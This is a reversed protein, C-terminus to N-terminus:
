IRSLEVGIAEQLMEVYNLSKKEQDGSYDVIDDDGLMVGSWGTMAAGEGTFKFLIINESPQALVLAVTYIDIGDTTGSWFSWARPMAKYGYGISKIRKFHIAKTSPICWLHRKTITVMKRRPDIKVLKKYSFLSLLQVFGSTQAYLVSRDTWVKPKIALFSLSAGYVSM